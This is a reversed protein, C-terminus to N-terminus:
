LTCTCTADKRQAGWASCAHVFRRAVDVSGPLYLHPFGAYLSPTHHAAHWFRESAPKRALLGAGTDDAEWRHFEHGRLATGAPGLLGAGQTELEIYGFRGHPKREAGGPCAGVLPWATGDDDTLRELLYLFGGCEAITPMGQALAARMAERMATNASLERAHLEPYGGGLFLGSAQEPLNEDHLPSFLALKAGLDELLELEETYYFCFAEDRAVAIVPASEHADLCPPLPWAGSSDLQPAAQALALIADIDLCDQALTTLRALKEDLDPLDQALVLGLHRSPLAIAEDHPLHGLVPVGCEREIVPAVKDALSGSAHDLVVGVVHSPTRMAVFGLAQAALSACAGRADLVLLAGSETIRAVDWASAKTTTGVGDYYGMAGEICAIDCGRGAHALLDRMLTESQFFADLNLRRVAGLREHFTPDVYDPGCKCALMRLGRERLAGMLACTLTTKGAGSKPATILIRPLPTLM